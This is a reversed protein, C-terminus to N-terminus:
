LIRNRLEDSVGSQGTFAKSVSVVSIGLKAAIDRMTVNKALNQAELDFIIKIDCSLEIM